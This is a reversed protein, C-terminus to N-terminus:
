RIKEKISRRTSRCFVAFVVGSVTMLSLTAPEPVITTLVIDNANGDNDYDWLRLTYESGNLMYTTTGFETNYFEGVVANASTNGILLLTSDSINSTDEGSTIKLNLNGDLSTVGGVSVTGFSSSGNLIFEIDGNSNAASSNFDGNVTLSSQQLVNISVAGSMIYNGGITRSATGNVGFTVASKGQSFDGIVNLGADNDFKLDDATRGPNFTISAASATVGTDVTIDYQTSSDVVVDSTITPVGDPNWNSAVGWSGSAGADWTVVEAFVSLGSVVMVILLISKKM